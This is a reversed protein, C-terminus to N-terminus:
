LSVLELLYFKPEGIPAKTTPDKGAARVQAPWGRKARMELADIALQNWLAWHCSQDRQYRYCAALFPILPVGEAAQGLEALSWQARRVVHSQRGRAQLERPIQSRQLRELLSSLRSTPRTTSSAAQRLDVGHANALAFLQAAKM